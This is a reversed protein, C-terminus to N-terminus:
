DNTGDGNSVRYVFLEGSLCIKGKTAATQILVLHLWPVIQKTSPLAVARCGLM